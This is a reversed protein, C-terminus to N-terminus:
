LQLSKLKLRTKERERTTVKANFLIEYNEIMETVVEDRMNRSLAEFLGIVKTDSANVLMTLSFGDILAIANRAITANINETAFKRGLQKNNM